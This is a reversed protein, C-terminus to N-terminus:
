TMPSNAKTRVTAKDSLPGGAVANQTTTADDRGSQNSSKQYYKYKAFGLAGLAALKIM